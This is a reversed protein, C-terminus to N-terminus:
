CPLPSRSIQAELLYLLYLYRSTCLYIYICINWVHELLLLGSRSPTCTAPSPARTALSPARTALATVRVQGTYPEKLAFSVTASSNEIQEIIRKWIAPRDLDVAIIHAGLQTLLNLPGMASTAGLLVFYQGSLDCWGPNRVVEKIAEGCEPEITGYAVWEDIQKILEMGELLVQKGTEYNKYPVSIKASAAKPKKGVVTHTHFRNM